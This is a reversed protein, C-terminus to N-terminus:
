HASWSQSRLDRARTRIPEFGLQQEQKFNNKQRRGFPTFILKEPIVESIFHKWLPEQPALYSRSSRDNQLLKSNELVM